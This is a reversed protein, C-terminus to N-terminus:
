EAPAVTTTEKDEHKLEFQALRRAITKPSGTRRALLDYFLPVIFLTMVTAILVGFVIVIGITLRSASGPGTSLVLPLSGVATSVGTMIIPRFRTESAKILAEHFDLGEDRLQNAFEVILIGNKAAIGILIIIGIMSYTNLTSGVVMLGFLAGAIAVPVTLMIVFPHVFSEFQAALVLFVVLLALVFVFILDGGQEKFMRAEGNFDYQLGGTVENQFTTELFEVADGMSYGDAIWANLTISQQRNWRKRIPTDATETIEILSTLPILDPRAGPRGARDARVFINNLDSPDERDVDRAQVKVDYEEGNSLYTTIRRSGLMTELTQGIAQTSVGLDAARTNNINVNFQPKVPKYDLDVRTLGPYELAADRILNAWPEISEYNPGSLIFQMPAGWMGSGGQMIGAFGRVAPMAAVKRNIEAAIAFGDRERLDWDELILQGRANNFQRSVGWGGPVRTTNRLAEGSDIYSNLIDELKQAQGVMYDFSTGEPATISVNILGRDEAPEGEQGIQGAMQVMLFIIGILLPIGLWPYPMLKRLVIVYQDRLKDFLAFFLNTNKGAVRKRRLLKSCMMPSLSLAVFSSLIVAGAVTVGLEGFVRGIFGDTFILPAFVAVIVITTAIVAFAVQRSGRYAALIPPEGQDVRRQINELVVISDDVVLGICLVLALLTMINLTAGMFDLVAFTAILCVPVVVSPVLAARFSGLFVFIVLVVLITAIFLTKQVEEIAKEVFITTDYSDNISLGEPLSQRIRAIEEKVGRAVDLANATSQKVIGIGMQPEGNGRFYIQDNKPIEEIDSVESLRILHGDEGEGIVLDKFDDVTSYNRSIRVAFERTTSEITGAPLEVNESQIANTLDNVTLGRAALAIRDIWIRMSKVGDRGGQVEGVGPVKELRDIINRKAYDAIEMRNMTPSSVTFWMIAFADPDMKSLRPSDAERPLAQRVREVAVQVDNFAAAIDRDLKFFVMVSSSDQRSSSSIHSVGEIGAVQAEILRTIKDEIVESSAGVYQTSVSVIPVDVSPKERLPLNMFSLMGFAVLLISMVTAFVPRKVSVDSLIM